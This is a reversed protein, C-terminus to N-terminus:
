RRRGGPSRGSGAPSPPWAPAPPRPLPAAASGRPQGPPPPCPSRGTGLTGTGEVTVAGGRLGGRPDRSRPRRPSGSRHRRGSAADRGRAARAGPGPPLHRARDRRPASFCAPSRGGAAPCRASPALPAGPWPALRCLSSPPTLAAAPPIRGLTRLTLGPPGPAPSCRVSPCPGMGLGTHMWKEMGRPSGASGRGGRSPPCHEGPGPGSRRRPVGSSARQGAARRDRVPPRAAAAVRPHTHTHRHARLRPTNGLTRPGGPRRRGPTPSRGEPTNPHLAGTALRPGPRCVAARCRATDGSGEPAARPPQLTPSERPPDIHNPHPPAPRAQKARRSHTQQREQQLYRAEQSRGGM